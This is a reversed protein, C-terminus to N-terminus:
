ILFSQVLVPIDRSLLPPSYNLYQIQEREHSTYFSLYTSFFASIFEPSINAKINAPPDYNNEVSIRLYKNECCRKRKVAQEQSFDKCPTDMTAMGCGLEHPGLSFATKVAKGGCYHKGLTISINSVLMLVALFIAPSKTM